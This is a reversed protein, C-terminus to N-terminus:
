VVRRTKGTEVEYVWGSIKVHEPVLSTGRLFKIDEEVASELKPFPLFDVNRSKLEETADASLVTLSDKKKSQCLPTSDAVAFRSFLCSVYSPFSGHWVTHHLQLTPSPFRRGLIRRSSAM